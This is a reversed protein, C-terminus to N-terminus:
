IVGGVMQLEKFLDKIKNVSINLVGCQKNKIILEGDMYTIYEMDNDEGSSLVTIFSMIETFGKQM